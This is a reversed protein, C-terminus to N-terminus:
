TAVPAHPEEEVPCRHCDQKSNLEREITEYPNPRALTAIASATIVAGCCGLHRRATVVPTNAQLPALPNM